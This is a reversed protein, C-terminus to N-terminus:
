EGIVILRASSSIILVDDFREESVAFKICLVVESSDIGDVPSTYECLSDVIEKRVEM